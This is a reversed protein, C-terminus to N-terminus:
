VKRAGKIKTGSEELQQKLTTASGTSGGNQPSSGPAPGPPAAPSPPGVGASKSAASLKTQMEAKIKETTAGTYGNLGAGAIEQVNNYQTIGGTTGTNPIGFVVKGDNRVAYEIRKVLPDTSNPNLPVFGSPNATTITSLKNNYAPNIYTAQKSDIPFQTDTASWLPM